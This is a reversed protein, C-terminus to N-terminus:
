LMFIALFYKLSITFILVLNYIYMQFLICLFQCMTSFLNFANQYWKFITLLRFFICYISCQVTFLASISLFYM